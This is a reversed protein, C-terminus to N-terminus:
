MLKKVGPIKRLLQGTLYSLLLVVLARAYNMWVGALTYHYFHFYFLKAFIVHIYFIDQSHISSSRAM